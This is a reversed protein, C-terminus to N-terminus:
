RVRGFTGAAGFPFLAGPTQPGQVWGARRDIVQAPGTALEVAPNFRFGGSPASGQFPQEGHQRMNLLARRQHTLRAADELQDRLDQQTFQGWPRPTLRRGTAPSMRQEIMWTPPMYRQEELPTGRLAALDLDERPISRLLRDIGYNERDGQVMRNGTPPRVPQPAAYHTRGYTQRRLREIARPNDPNPNAPM